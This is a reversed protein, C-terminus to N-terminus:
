RGWGRWEVEEAWCQSLGMGRKGTRIVREWEWTWRERCPDLGWDLLLRYVEVLKEQGKWQRYKLCKRERRLQRGDIFFDTWAHFLGSLVSVERKSLRRGGRFRGVVRAIERFEEGKERKALLRWSGLTRNGAALVAQDGILRKLDHKRRCAWRYAIVSFQRGLHVGIEGYGIGVSRALAIYRDETASFPYKPIYPHGPGPLEIRAADDRHIYFNGWRKAPITGGRILAGIWGVTCGLRRALQRTTVYEKGDRVSSALGRLERDAIKAPRYYAWNEPDAVFRRLEERRVRHVVRGEYPFVDAELYGREIWKGVSHSDVGMALGVDRATLWQPNKLLPPWGNRGIRIKVAAASRGIRQGIQELTLCGLDDLVHQSPVEGRLRGLQEENLLGLHARLVDEQWRPWAKSTPGQRKEEPRRRRIAWSPLGAGLSIRKTAEATGDYAVEMIAETVIDIM